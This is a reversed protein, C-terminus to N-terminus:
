SQARSADPRDHVVPDPERGAPVFVAVLAVLLAASSIWRVPMAMHLGTATEFWFVSMAFAFVMRGAPM